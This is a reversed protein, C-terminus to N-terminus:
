DSHTAHEWFSLAVTHLLLRDRSAAPLDGVLDHIRIQQDIVIDAAIVPGPPGVWSLYGVPSGTDELYGHVLSIPGDPGTFEGNWCHPRTATEIAGYACGGGPALWFRSSGGADGETWCGFRTEPVGEGTPDTRCRIGPAPSDRFAVSFEVDTLARALGTGVVCRDVEIGIQRGDPLDWSTPAFGYMVWPTAALVQPEADPEVPWGPPTVVTCGLTAVLCPLLAIRM